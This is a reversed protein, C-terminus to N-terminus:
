CVVKIGVNPTKLAGMKLKMKTDLRLTLPLGNKNKMNKTLQTAADSDLAQDRSLISAKLLMTNKKGQELSSLTGDGVDIEDSLISISTPKNLFIVKNNPDKANINLDFKSHVTSSSTLNLYSLKLSNVAFSPRHPRYILYLAVGALGILLLVVLILLIFWFCFTCCFRRRSRRHHPQPRYTPRTAGYLQAKTAPFSPNAGGNATGNGTPKASPYVRDTM